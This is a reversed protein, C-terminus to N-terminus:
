YSVGCLNLTKQSKSFKLYYELVRTKKHFERITEFYCKEYLIWSNGLSFTRLVSQNRRVYTWSLGHTWQFYHKLGKWAGSRKRYGRFVDSFTQNESIKLLYLSLDPTHFPSVRKLSSTGIGLVTLSVWLSFAGDFLVGVSFTRIHANPYSTCWIM